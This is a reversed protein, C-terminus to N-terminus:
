ENLNIRNDQRNGSIYGSLGLSKEKRIKNVIENDSTTTVINTCLLILSIYLIFSNIMNGISRRM